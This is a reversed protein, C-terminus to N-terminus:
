SKNNPSINNPIRKSPFFHDIKKIKMNKIDNQITQHKELYTPTAIKNIKAVDFM